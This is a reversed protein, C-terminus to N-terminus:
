RALPLEHTVKTEEMVFYTNTRTVGPLSAIRQGLFRRFAAMDSVRVKLLYDFGGAVMHCELIAPIVSVGLRFDDFARPSTRDLSIEVFALLGLGLKGANLHTVYKDIYALQELRRVRALCPTPTLHVREALEVNTLKSDRQLLLLIKRDISDLEDPDM